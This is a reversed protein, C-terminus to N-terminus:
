CGELRRGEAHMFFHGTEAAQFFTGLAAAYLYTDTKNWRKIKPMSSSLGYPGQSNGAVRHSM